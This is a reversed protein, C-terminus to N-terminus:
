GDDGPLMIDLIDLRSGGSGARLSARATAFVEAEYGASELAYAVLERIGRDDEVVYIM